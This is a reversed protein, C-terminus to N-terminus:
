TKNHKPLYFGSKSKLDRYINRDLIKQNQVVGRVMHLSNLVFSRKKREIAEKEKSTEAHSINDEKSNFSKTVMTEEITGKMALIDVNIPEKAGMRHARSIVQSALSQDWVPEMIYIHSVFSLDHGFAGTSDLILIQISSDHRFHHLANMKAQYSLAGLVRCYRYGHRDLINSILFIHELFQSFVIVKRKRRTWVGNDLVPEENLQKLASLLYNAKASDTEEWTPHWNEQMFGPQLEILDEPVDKKDLRYKRQCNQLPCCVRSTSACDTCLIHCCPTVIPLRIWESCLECLGGELLVKQIRFVHRQITESDTSSLSKELELQLKGLTENLDEQLVSLKIHGAICCSKRVNEIAQRAAHRNKPHLLSQTHDPDNFDALLLNRRIVSVLENYSLATVPSFDLLKCSIYSPPIVEVESKLTRFMTRQLLFKLRDLGELQKAEFPRQICHLWVNKGVGFAEDRLFEYLPALHAIDSMSTNPTPTGTMIWRRDTRLACCIMKTYNLSLSAGVRHGEDLIVRFWHISLLSADNSKARQYERQVQSFTTLVVDFYHLVLQLPFSRFCRGGCFRFHRDGIHVLIRIKERSHLTLQEEWHLLLTSPVVILTAGSIYVLPLESACPKSMTAEITNCYREPRRIKRKKLPSPSSSDDSSHNKFFQPKCVLPSLNSSPVSRGPNLAENPIYCKAVQISNGTDLSKEFITEETPGDAYQRFTKLILALITITKGLGPEDCYLGGQFDEFVESGLPQLSITGTVSDVYFADWFKFNVPFRICYLCPNRYFSTEKRERKLMFRLARQQHPLLTLKLGPIYSDCISKARRCTRAFYRVDQVALYDLIRYLLDVPLSFLLCNDNVTAKSVVVPDEEVTEKLEEFVKHLRFRTELKSTEVDDCAKCGLVGCSSDPKGDDEKPEKSLFYLHRCFFKLFSAVSRSSRSPLSSQELRHRCALLQAREVDVSQEDMKLVLETSIRQFTPDLGIDCCVNRAYSDKRVLLSGLLIYEDENM